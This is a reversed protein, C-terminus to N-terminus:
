SREAKRIRDLYSEVHVSEPAIKSKYIKELNTYLTTVNDTSGFAGDGRDTQELADTKNFVMVDVNSDDIVLQCINDSMKYIKDLNIKGVLSKFMDQETVLRFDEPQFIYKFRLLYEGTYNTDILGISNALVLNYKSISSRPFLLVYNALSKDTLQISINTKYEIYDVSYYYTKGDASTYSKGVIVPEAVTKVDYGVSAPHARQPTTKELTDDVFKINCTRM